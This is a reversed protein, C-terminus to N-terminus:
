RGPLALRIWGRGPHAGKYFGGALGGSLIGIGAGTFADSILQSPPQDPQDTVGGAQLLVGVVAGIFMGSVAGIIAGHRFGERSTRDGYVELRAMDFVSVPWESELGEVGLVMVDYDWQVFEAAVPLGGPMRIRVTDGVSVRESGALQAVVPTVTFPVGFALGTLALGALVRWRAPARM